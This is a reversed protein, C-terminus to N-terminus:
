KKLKRGGSCSKTKPNFSRSYETCLGPDGWDIRLLEVQAKHFSILWAHFDVTPIKVEGSGFLIGLGILGLNKTSIMEWDKRSQAAQAKLVREIQSDSFSRVAKTSVMEKQKTPTSSPKHKLERNMLSETTLNHNQSQNISRMNLQLIQATLSLKFFTVIKPTKVKPTAPIRAMM